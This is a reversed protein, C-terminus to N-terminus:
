KRLSELFKKPIRKRLKDKKLQQAVPNLPTWDINKKDNGSSGEESFAKIIWYDVRRQTYAQWCYAVADVYNNVEMERIDNKNLHLIDM